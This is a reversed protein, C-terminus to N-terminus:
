RRSAFVFVTTAAISTPFRGHEPKTAPKPLMQTGLQPSLVSERTSMLVLLTTAVRGSPGALLSPPMAVVVSLTQINVSLFPTRERISGCVFLTLASISTGEPDNAQTRPSSPAIQILLVSFLRKDRTSGFVFVT